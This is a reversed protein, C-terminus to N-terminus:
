HSIYRAEAEKAKSILQRLFTIEGSLETITRDYKTKGSETSEIKLRLIEAREDSGCQIKIDLQSGGQGKTARESTTTTYLKM